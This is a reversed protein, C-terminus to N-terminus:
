VWLHTLTSALHDVSTLPSMMSWPGTADQRSAVLHTDCGRASFEVEACRTVKGRRKPLLKQRKVNEAKIM